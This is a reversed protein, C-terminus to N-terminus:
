FLVAIGSLFNVASKGFLSLSSMFVIVRFSFTRVEAVLDAVLQSVTKRTVNKKRAAV